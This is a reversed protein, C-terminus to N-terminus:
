CRHDEGFPKEIDGVRSEIQIVSDICYALVFEASNADAPQNGYINLTENGTFFVQGGIRTYKAYDSYNMGLAVYLLTRQTREFAKLTEKLTKQM